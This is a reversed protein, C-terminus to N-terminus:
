RHVIGTDKRRDRTQREQVSFASSLAPNLQSSYILHRLPMQHIGQRISAIFSTTHQSLSRPAAFLSQDTSKQIPFGVGTPTDQVSYM